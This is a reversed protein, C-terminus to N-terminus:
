SEIGKPFKFFVKLGPKIIAPEAVPYEITGVIGRNEKTKEVFRGALERRGYFESIPNGTYVCPLQKAYVVLTAIPPKPAELSDSPAIVIYTGRPVKSLSFSRNDEAGILFNAGLMEPTIEVGMQQSCLEADYPSIAFWHRNERLSVGKPYLTRERGTREHSYRRHRDNIIGQVDIELQSVKRNMFSTKSNSNDGQEYVALVVGTEPLDSISSLRAKEGKVMDALNDYFEM